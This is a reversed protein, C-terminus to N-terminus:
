SELVAAAAEEGSRVASEMSSPLKLYSGALHFGKIDRLHNSNMEHVAALKLLQCYTKPPVGRFKLDFPISKLQYAIGGPAHLCHAKGKKWIAGQFPVPKVESGMDLDNCLGLTHTWRKVAFQAGLDFTYGEKHYSGVRGGAVNRSEFTTAEVRNKRLVRTAALGAVVVVRM